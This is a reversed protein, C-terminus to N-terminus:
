RSPEEDGLAMLERVHLAAARGLASLAYGGELMSVIRGEAHRDAIDMLKRSIWAYDADVLALSALPDEVHADFGASIFLMEPKFRELAPLWRAEIAEARRHDDAYGDALQEFASDHEIFDFPDAYPQVRRYLDDPAFHLDEVKQGYGNYNMLMGLKELQEMRDADVGLPAAAERAIDLLNDGFAAVVAWAIHRRNIWDNVILGTCTNPSPDIHAELTPHDPIEGAYHHDFYRVEAGADLLPILADRNKDLSVDLVTVEDRAEAPIRKVLEIDRKVGTVLINERPQALRLQHLSCIGDADGNFADITNM